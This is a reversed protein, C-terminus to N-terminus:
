QMLTNANGIVNPGNAPHVTGDENRLLYGRHVLDSLIMAASANNDADHQTALLDEKLRM